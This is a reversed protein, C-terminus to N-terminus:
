FPLENDRGEDGMLEDVRWYNRENRAHSESCTENEVDPEWGKITLEPYKDSTECM